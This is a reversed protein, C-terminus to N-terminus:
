FNKFFISKKPFIETFLQAPLSFNEPYLNRIVGLLIGSGSQFNPDPALEGYLLGKAQM